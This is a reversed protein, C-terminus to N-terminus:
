DAAELVYIRMEAPLTAPTFEAAKTPVRVVIEAPYRTLFAELPYFWFGHPLELRSDQYHMPIVVRPKIQDIAWALDDLPITYNDGAIALMVDVEGRLRDIHDPSFPLGTDGLHLVRVGEVTFRYMANQQPDTKGHVLRERTRFGEFTIGRVTRPGERAVDLAEVLEHNGPVTSHSAHARDDPSSRVVIDAPEALTRYGFGPAEYPDTVISVGDGDVRFCALGHWTIRM